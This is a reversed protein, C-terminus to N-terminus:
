AWVPYQGAQGYIFLMGRDPALSDRFMLGRTMEFPKTAVEVRYKYGDPLRVERTYLDEWTATKQQDVCGTGTCLVLLVWFTKCQM